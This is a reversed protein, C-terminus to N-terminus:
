RAQAAADLHLAGRLYAALDGRIAVADREGLRTLFYDFMRRLDRDALPQGNADLHVVGDVQTGRLSDPPPPNQVQGTAPAAQETRVQRDAVNRPVAALPAVAPAPVRADRAHWCWVSVVTAAILAIAAAVGRQM